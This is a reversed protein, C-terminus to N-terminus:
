KTIKDRGTVDGGATKIKKQKVKNINSKTIKIKIHISIGAGIILGLLGSIIENTTMIYLKLSSSKNIILAEM